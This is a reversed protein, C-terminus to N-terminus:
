EIGSKRQQESLFAKFAESGKEHKFFETLLRDGLHYQSVMHKIQDDNLELVMACDTLVNALKDRDAETSIKFIDNFDVWSVFKAM